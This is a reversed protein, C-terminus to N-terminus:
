KNNVRCSNLFDNLDSVLFVTKTGIKARKLRGDAALQDLKRTSIALYDAADNRCIAGTPFKTTFNGSITARNM